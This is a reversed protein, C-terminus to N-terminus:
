ERPYKEKSQPNQERTYHWLAAPAAEYGIEDLNIEEPPTPRSFIWSLWSPRKEEVAPDKYVSNM